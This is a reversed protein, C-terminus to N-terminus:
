LFSVEDLADDSEIIEDYHWITLGVFSHDIKLFHPQNEKIIIKDFPQKLKIFEQENNDLQVDMRGSLNIYIEKAQHYHFSYNFPGTYYVLFLKFKALNILEIHRYNLAIDAKAEASLNPYNSTDYRSWQVEDLDSITANITTITSQILQKDLSFENFINFLKQDFQNM